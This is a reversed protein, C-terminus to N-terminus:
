EQDLILEIKNLENSWRFGIVNRYGEDTHVVVGIKSRSKDISGSNKDVHEQWLKKLWEALDWADMVLTEM